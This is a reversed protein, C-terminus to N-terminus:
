AVPIQIDNADHLIMYCHMPKMFHPSHNTERALQMYKETPPAGGVPFLSFYPQSALSTFPIPM